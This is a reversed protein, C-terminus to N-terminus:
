ANIAAWLTVTAISRHPAWRRGYELLDREGAPLGLRRAGARVGLDSALLVDPRGLRIAVYDATWPGIGRVELMSARDLPDLGDALAAALSRVADRRSRPMALLEDPAGALATPTPFSRVVSGDPREVPEGLAAALRSAHTRAAAVSIQQGLVARVAIEPGDLARPVPVPGVPGLDPDHALAQPDGWRLAESQFRRVAGDLVRVYRDGRVEEVGDVARAALFALVSDM